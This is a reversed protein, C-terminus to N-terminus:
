NGLGKQKPAKKMIYNVDNECSKDDIRITLVTALRGQECTGEEAYHRVFLTYAQKAPDVSRMPISIIKDEDPVWAAGEELMSGSYSVKKVTILRSGKTEASVDFVFRGLDDDKARIWAGELKRWPTECESGLPWPLWDGMISPIREDMPDLSQPCFIYDKKPIITAHSSFALFALVGLVWKANKM